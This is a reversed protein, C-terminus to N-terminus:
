KLLEYNIYNSPIKKYKFNYKFIREKAEKEESILRLIEFVDYDFGVFMAFIKRYDATKHIKLKTAKEAKSTASVLRTWVSTNHNFASIILKFQSICNGMEEQLKNYDIKIAEIFDAIQTDSMKESDNDYSIFDRKLEEYGKYGFKYTLLGRFHNHFKIIDQSFLDLGTKFYDKRELNSLYGNVILISLFLQFLAVLLSSSLASWSWEEPKNFYITLFILVFCALFISGCVFAVKPSNRIFGLKKKM